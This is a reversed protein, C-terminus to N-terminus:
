RTQKKKGKYDTDMEEPILHVIINEPYVFERSRAQLLYYEGKASSTASKGAGNQSKRLNELFAEEKTSGSYSASDRRRRGRVLHNWLL